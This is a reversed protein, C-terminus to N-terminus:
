FALEAGCAPCFKFQTHCDSGCKLCATKEKPGKGYWDIAVQSSEITEGLADYRRRQDPSLASFAGDFTDGDGNSFVVRKFHQAMIGRFRIARVSM